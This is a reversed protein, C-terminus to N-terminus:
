DVDFRLIMGTVPSITSRVKLPFSVARKRGSKTFRQTIEFKEVEVDIEGAIEDNQEVRTKGGTGLTKLVMVAEATEYNNCRGSVKATLYTEDM